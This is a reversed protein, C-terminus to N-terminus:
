FDRVVVYGLWLAAMGLVVQGAANWAARVAQGERLLMYTDFTYSSFTTFGGLVGALVFARAPASLPFRRDALAAILGFLFCGLVNVVFTGAAAHAAAHRTILSSLVYRAASGLAGGIAAYLLNM